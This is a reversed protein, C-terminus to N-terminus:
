SLWAALREAILIVPANTNARTIQPLVSADAVRLADIGHVRCYQDVVAQPDSAPGMKCTGSVHRATGVTALLWEDLTKDSALDVNTPGTLRAVVNKYAASQGLRLCLRVGERLRQRDYPDELYRYNFAPQQHPDASSLRLDGAGAPLSLSCSIRIGHEPLYEGTVPNYISSTLLAMDNPTTSGTATYRASLRVTNPGLTLPVGDRVRFTVSANPHNTLHQGVGPSHHLVPIGFSRLHDAPGVGSLLLLHPSRLGGAALIIEGGEVVFKQGGSEAEVAVARKKDILVRTALVNPRITLNLRHRAPALHTLAASMRIGDPNNLPLLGVGTSDPGNMDPDEPFGEAQCAKYFATHYPQWEGHKRRLVPIPGDAGHYDDSIDLDREMKRYYPLVKHYAWETNGLAAWDDHDQPIARLFTQGNIAGSGGVVKGQAVHVRAQKSTLDGTLSWNHKGSRAEADRTYGYKLDDPLSQLDPYDPGAELLLVSRHPNESLRAALVCGASGAGVIIVDYKM